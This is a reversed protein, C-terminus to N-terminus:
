SHHLWLGPLAFAAPLIKEFAGRLARTRSQICGSTTHQMPVECMLQPTATRFILLLCILMEGFNPPGWKPIGRRLVVFKSLTLPRWNQSTGHKSPPPWVLDAPDAVCDAGACGCQKPERSLSSISAAATLIVVMIKATVLALM